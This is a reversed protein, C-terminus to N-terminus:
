SRTKDLENLIDERDRDEDHTLVEDVPQYSKGYFEEDKYTHIETYMKKMQEYIQEEPADDPSWYLIEMKNLEDTVVSRRTYGISQAHMFGERQYFRLRAETDSDDYDVPEVELIIPKGKAKMKEILKHGLGQGRSATSVYVYDIFLFSDFEAYMLVHNEGEDKYYVDSKEKLLAEMHEKSKMEEVPFYENLKEYWNM